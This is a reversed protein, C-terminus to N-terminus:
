YICSFSGKPGLTKGVPPLPVLKRSESTVQQGQVPGPFGEAEWLSMLPHGLIPSALWSSVTRSALYKTVGAWQPQALPTVRWPSPAGQCHWLFPAPFGLILQAEIIM